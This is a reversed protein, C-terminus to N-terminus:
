RRRDAVGGSGPEIRFLLMARGDTIDLRPSGKVEKVQKYTAIGQDAQERWEWGSLSGGKPRTRGEELWPSRFNEGDYVVLLDLGPHPCRPWMQQIQRLASESGFLLIDWDSTSNAKGSAQSGILYASKVGDIRRLEDLAASIEQSLPTM